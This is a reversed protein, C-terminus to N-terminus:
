QVLQKQEDTLINDRGARRNNEIYDLADANTDTDSHYSSAYAAMPASVASLVLGTCILAKLKKNM